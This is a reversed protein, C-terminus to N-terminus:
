LGQRGDQYIGLGKKKNEAVREKQDHYNTPRHNFLFEFVLM